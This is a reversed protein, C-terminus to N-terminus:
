LHSGPEEHGLNGLFLPQLDALRFDLFAELLQGFLASLVERLEARLITFRLLALGQDPHNELVLDEVDDFGLGLNRFCSRPAGLMFLGSVRAWARSVRSLTCPDTM